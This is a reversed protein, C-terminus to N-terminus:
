GDDTANDHRTARLRATRRQRHDEDLAARRTAADVTRERTLRLVDVRLADRERRADDRDQEADILLDALQDAANRADRAAALADAADQRAAGLDGLLLAVRDADDPVTAAPRNRTTM